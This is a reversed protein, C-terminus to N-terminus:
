WWDAHGMQVDPWDSHLSWRATAIGADGAREVLGIPHEHLFYRGESHQRLYFKIATRLHHRGREVVEAEVAPDRRQKSSQRLASFAHCPPSGTLLAPQEMTLLKDLEEVDRSREMDWFEGKHPGGTKPETLDVAFGANLGLKSAMATFRKPSYIGAVHCAAMEVQLAAVKKVEDETIPVGQRRFTAEVGISALEVLEAKDKSMMIEENEDIGFEFNSMEKDGPDERQVQLDAPSSNASEVDMTGSSPVDAPVVIAPQAAIQGSASSSAGGAIYAGMPIVDDDLGEGSKPVQPDIDEIPADARRKRSVPEAAAPEDAAAPEAPEDRKSRKDKKRSRDERRRKKSEELAVRAEVREKFTQVRQANQADLQEFIRARCEPTHPVTSKLGIRNSDCAACGDTYGHEEVDKQM